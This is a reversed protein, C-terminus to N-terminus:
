LKQIAMGEELAQAVANLSNQVAVAAKEEAQESAALSASGMPHLTYGECPYGEGRLIAAFHKSMDEAPTIPTVDMSFTTKFMRLM